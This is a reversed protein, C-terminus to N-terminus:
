GGPQRRGAQARGFVWQPWWLLILLILALLADVWWIGPVAGVAGQEVWTRATASLNYYPFYALAATLLKSYKGRRPPARSLPIGLLGLLLTALPRSIRWQWEAIDEPNDSRALQATTAAKRKIGISNDTYGALRLELKNFAVVRDQQGGRDFEYVRGQLFVLAPVDAGDAVPQYAEEAYIVRSTDGSQHHVFVDQLRKRDYDIADAFLTNTGKASEYFRGPKLKTLDFTLEAQTQLQDSERYAWPRVYLSLIGVVLAVLLSLKVVTWAIRREGVGAANFAVMEADAHLRGLGIVVALYLAIPLLTEISILTRLLVLKLVLDPPALGAAADALRQTANASIFIVFLVACVVLLPKTIEQILYRDIIL